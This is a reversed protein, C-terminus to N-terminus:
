ALLIQSNALFADLQRSAEPSLPQFSLGMIMRYQETEINRVTTYINELNKRLELPVLLELKDGIATVRALGQGRVDMVLRCGGRSIDSIIGAAEMGDKKVLVPLTSNIRKHKRVQVTNMINPYALTVLLAPRSLHGLIESQFLNAARDSLFRASVRGGQNIRPLLGPAPQLRLIIFEYHSYGVIEAPVDMANKEDGWGFRLLMRTGIRLNLRYTREMRMEGITLEQLLNEMQLQAPHEYSKDAM